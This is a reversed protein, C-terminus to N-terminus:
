DGVATIVADVGKVWEILKERNETQIENVNIGTSNYHSVQLGPFREQLKKGATLVMPAGARKFINFLGIKKGALSTLRPSIGRPMIPDAEAWPSLVEYTCSQKKDM